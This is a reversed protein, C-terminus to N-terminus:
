MVHSQSAKYSQDLAQWRNHNRAQGPGIFGPSGSLLLGGCLLAFGVDKIKVHAQPVQMGHVLLKHGHQLTSNLQKLRAIECTRAAHKAPQNLLL